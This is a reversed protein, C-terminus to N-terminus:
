KNFGFGSKEHKVLDEEDVTEYNIITSLSLTERKSSFEVPSLNLSERVKHGEEHTLHRFEMVDFSRGVRILAEDVKSKNALNTSIILKNNNPIVGEIYNLLASMQYNREERSAVFNDADEIAILSDREIEGLWLTFNPSMLTKEDYVLHLHKVSMKFMLTRLFSSKGTGPPGILLIVGAKSKKFREAYQDITEGLWPYFSDNALELEDEKLQNERQIINGDNAIGVLQNISIVKPPIYKAKYRSIVEEAEEKEGAAVIVISSQTRAIVVLFEPDGDKDLRIGRFYHTSHYIFKFESEVMAALEDLDVEINSPLIFDRQYTSLDKNLRITWLWEVFRTSDPDIFPIIDMLREKFTMSKGLVNSASLHKSDEFM